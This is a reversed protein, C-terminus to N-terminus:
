PHKVIVGTSLWQVLLVALHVAAEAEPNTMRRSNPGGGHRSRQANWLSEMMTVAAAIDQPTGDKAPLVLKWKPNARLEGIVGGLTANGSAAKQQLVLPCAIEEVARIAETFVKDPDPKRGYTAVWAQRMYDAATLPAAQVAMKFAGDAEESVRRELGRNATDIRYLSSGELLLLALKLVAERWETQNWNDFPDSARNYPDWGPHIQLTADVADLLLNTDINVLALVESHNDGHPLFIQLRVAVRSALGRPKELAEFLWARMPVELWVPVGDHLVDDIPKGALRDSLRQFPRM